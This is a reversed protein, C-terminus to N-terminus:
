SRKKWVIMSDGEHFPDITVQAIGKNNELQSYTSDTPNMDSLLSKIYNFSGTQFSWVVSVVLGTKKNITIFNNFDTTSKLKSNVKKAIYLESQNDNSRIKETKYGNFKLIKFEEAKTRGIDNYDQAFCQGITLIGFIALLTTIWNKM